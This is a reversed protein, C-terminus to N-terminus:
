DRGEGAAAATRAALYVSLASGYREKFARNFTSKSAFGSEVALDLITRQRLEGEVVRQMFYDLRRESVLQPFNRRFVHNIVLSLRRPHVELSQALAAVTLDPDLYVGSDLARRVMAATEEIEDEDLSCGNEHSRGAAGSPGAAGVAGVALVNPIFLVVLAFGYVTAMMVLAPLFLPPLGAPDAAGAAAVEPRLAAAAFSVMSVLPALVVIRAWLLRPREGVQVGSEPGFATRAAAVAYVGGHAIKVVHRAIMWWPPSDSFLQAVLVQYEPASLSTLYLALAGTEILWPLAHTPALRPVDDRYNVLNRVYWWGLPGFLLPLPGILTLVWPMDAVGRATWFPITSLRISFLLLLLAFPMNLRCRFKAGILILLLLGQVAGLMAVLSLM